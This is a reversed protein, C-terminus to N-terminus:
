VFVHLIKFQSSEIFCIYVPHCFYVFIPLQASRPTRHFSGHPLSKQSSIQPILFCYCELFFTCCKLPESDPLFCLFGFISSPASSLLSPLLVHSSFKAPVLGSLVSCARKLTKTETRFAVTDVSPDLASPLPCGLAPYSDFKNLVSKEAKLFMTIPLLCTHIHPSQNPYFQRQGTLFSPSM